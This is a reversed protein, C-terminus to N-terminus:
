SVANTSLGPTLFRKLKARHEARLYAIAEDPLVRPSRRIMSLVYGAFSAASGLMIPNELLRYGCRLAYFSMGYGLSYFRRGERVKAPLLRTNATGTRRYEFVKDDLSKRVKWGKMRAIIEAAADIGGYELPMYGGIEEFCRRRFLQVAGGVSDTTEDHTQFSDGVKTYVIGGTIGLQSDSDFLNLLNEFYRAGFSIDADLNGIFDFNTGDFESYGKNFALVKRGFDRGEGRQLRVSQIFEFQSAYRDVIDATRDTSGDNVIVWKVPKVTQCLVSAITKEIFAEENHAPTVIVYSSMTNRRPDVSKNRM